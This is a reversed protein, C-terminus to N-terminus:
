ATAEWLSRAQDPSVGSLEVGRDSAAAEFAAFHDRFRATAGRLAAESDVGLARALAVVEFLLEGVHEEPDGGTAVSPAELPPPEIGVGAAKRQVKHAQLLAPLASPIGEMLSRRGKEQRKILEWNAMVADPTAAEVTGFVHPHRGVLKDHVTRAVDALGFQGEETALTSHFFVQFLLDGLEEELHGYSAPSGDLGDIAELVEYAEEILHRELSRHTQERDWPCRQRLTRVLEGLRVLEGAVPAGLRPVFVSTLHDPVVRDLDSWSLEAVEEDALGLHSLLTVTPPGGPGAAAEGLALKVEALVAPSWCQAVLFPGAQGASEASFVTGDVLRVGAAVPDVGLRIWALDLFSLAPHVEVEVRGDARLLDVSAEAVMPSGPVAYLVTGHEGAAEVLSDVITGYVDEFREAGEYADDFSGSWSIGAAAPHRTTRVYRHPSVQVLSRTEAGILEPGAPGLGVVVVRGAGNM